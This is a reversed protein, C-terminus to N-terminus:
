LAPQPQRNSIQAINLFVQSITASTGPQCLYNGQGCRCKMAKLMSLQIEDEVGEGICHIGLNAALSVISSVVALMEQGKGLDALLSPDMKLAEFPYQQLCSLSSYGTGFDDIALRFGARALSPLLTEAVERNAMIRAETVELQLEEPCMRYERLLTRLQSELNEQILQRGSLNISVYRPAATTLTKRWQVFQRCAEQLIWESVPIILRSEEAIGLFQQPLMLGYEPHNWRVFAEVGEPLGSELNFIPQWVLHLQEDRIATRLDNEIRLRQQAEERMSDDFVVYCGKGRAKAEYMATDADRIMEEAQLYEPRSCVIGISATSRVQHAGLQYQEGLARLLREAVQCATEPGGINDVIIVFEDGGLRSVTTGDALTSISDTIELNGTLRAAIERLLTDGAEHGLSDNVFKFRDFDLFMLAFQYGDTQRAKEIYLTLRDIFLARNPLGTLRDVRAARILEKEIKKRETIDRVIGVFRPTDTQKSVFQLSLEVPIDHGDRHRHLTEFTFLRHSGDTLPQVLRGLSDLTLDPVINLPTMELYQEETYGLLQRAGENVYIFRYDSPRFMFVSDLTQDLTTKFQRLKEAAARQQTLHFRTLTVISAGTLLLSEIVALIGIVSLRANFIQQGWVAAPFDVGLVGEVNGASDHLPHLASVWMGWRDRYPTSIFAPLGKLAQEFAEAQGPANFGAYEEGPATRFERAEDIRGSRDYDTESDVVIRTRGDASRRMTYIDSVLQNARLWRQQADVLRLYVPNTDAINSAISAHHLKETEGAYTTAFASMHNILNCRQEADVNYVFRYGFILVAVSLGTCIFYATNEHHCAAVVRFLVFLGVLCCGTFCLFDLQYDIFTWVM